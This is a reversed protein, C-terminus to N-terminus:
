RIKRSILGTNINGNLMVVEVWDAATVTVGSAVPLSKSSNTQGARRVRATGSGTATIEATIIEQKQGVVLRLNKALKM